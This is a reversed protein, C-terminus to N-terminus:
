LQYGKLINLRLDIVSYYLVRIFRVGRAAYYRGWNFQVIPHDKVHGRLNYGGICNLYVCRYRSKICNRLFSDEGLLCAFTTIKKNRPDQVKRLLEESECELWFPKWLAYLGKFFPGYKRIKFLLVAARYLGLGKLSHFYMCSALGIKNKGVIRIAKLVNKNILLDADVRLIRNYTAKMFGKRRVWAKHYKINPNKKVRLFVTPTDKYKESIEKAKEYSNKHPPDDFCLIMESPKIRYCSVLTRDLFKAEDKIPMVISFEM